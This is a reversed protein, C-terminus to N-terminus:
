FTQVSSFHITLDIYEEGREFVLPIDFGFILMKTICM